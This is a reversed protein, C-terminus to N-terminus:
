MHDNLMFNVAQEFDLCFQKQQCIESKLLRERMGSRLEQLRLKNSALNIAISVYEDKNTAILDPLGIRTMISSGMRGAYCNGRLTILPVGMWLTDCTITHGNHPFSDLAIDVQNFLNLYELYPLSGQFIVHDKAINHQKFLEQYRAIIAPEAFQRSVLLLRAQPLRNLITAWVEVVEPTIKPLNNFSAFTTINNNGSNHSSIDPSKKPPSFCFFGHPLRYLKESYFIESGPPDTIEDTLRYDIVPLGTTNVYGLWSAQVPAPMLSMVGLRNNATHGALDILIDIKDKKILGAADQDNLPAIDRWYGAAKQLRLTQKDPIKPLNAYCFTNLREGSFNKILPLLFQGVPHNCFDPSIFGIKIPKAPLKTIKDQKVAKQSQRTWWKKALEYKAQNDFSPDYNLSFLLDSHDAPSLTTQKQLESLCQWSEPLMGYERYVWALNIYAQSLDPKISIAQQYHGLAQQLRGMKILTNAMNNHFVANNPAELIALEFTALSEEYRGMLQLIEGELGLAQGPPPLDRLRSCYDLAKPFNGQLRLATIIGQLAEIHRPKSNLIKRFYSEAEKFDGKESLVSALNYLSEFHNPSYQLAKKFISAAQEYNKNARFAAGLNVYYPTRDPYYKIARQLLRIALPLDGTQMALAGALNLADGHKSNHRIIQNYLDKATAYDGNQHLALAKHLTSKVQLPAKKFPSKRTKKKKKVM